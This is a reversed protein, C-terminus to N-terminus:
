KAVKVLTPRLVREGLRYGHRLVEIIQGSAHQDSEAHVVAEHLKPDFTQGEAEIRTVGEAEL